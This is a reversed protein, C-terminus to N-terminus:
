DDDDLVLPSQCRQCCGWVGGPGLVIWLVDGLSRLAVLTDALHAFSTQSSPVHKGGLPGGVPVEETEDGLELLLLGLLLVVLVDLHGGGSLTRAGTAANQARCCM